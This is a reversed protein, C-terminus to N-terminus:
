KPDSAAQTTATDLKEITVTRVPEDKGVQLGGLQPVWRIASEVARCAATSAFRERRLGKNQQGVAEWGGLQNKFYWVEIRWIVEGGKDNVFGNDRVLRLLAVARDHDGQLRIFDRKNYFGPVDQVIARIQERDDNELEGADNKAPEQDYWGLDVGQLITGDSLTVRVTYAIDPLLKIFTISQGNIKGDVDLKLSMATAVASKVPSRAPLAPLRVVLDNASVPIAISLLALLSVAATLRVIQTIRREIFM